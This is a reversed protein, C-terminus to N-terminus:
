HRAKPLGKEPSKKRAPASPRRKQPALGYFGDAVLLHLYAFAQQQEDAPIVAARCKEAGVCYEYRFPYLRWPGPADDLIQYNFTGSDVGAPITNTGVPDLGPCVIRVPGDFGDLRQVRFSASCARAKANVDVSSLAGFVVARPAPRRIQLVYVFDGGAAGTRERVVAAYTGKEPATFAICSDTDQRCKDLNLSVSMDDNSAVVRGGPGRVELVTDAPSDFRRSFTEVVLSEGKEARFVVQRRAGPEKFVGSVEFPIRDGGPARFFTRFGSPPPPAPTYAPVPLSRRVYPLSGTVCSIRYVFDARGRYLSDFIELEYVGDSPARCRLVPDPRHYEDDAFAVERGVSDLLRLVPQFHGPVADGIFPTLDSALVSFSYDQGGKLCVKFRDTEGPMVTGNLVAPFDAVVEAVQATAALFQPAYLPEAYEPVTGIVFSKPNSIGSGNFLRFSIEGVPADPPVELDLIVRQSLSPAAQLPNKPLYLFDEIISLELPDRLDLSELWAIQKWEKNTTAAEPLPPMEPKGAHLGRLWTDVWKRQDGILNQINPVPTVQTLRVANTPATLRLNGYLRQGGVVVRLHSGQQAGSPYLYGIYPANAALVSLPLLVFLARCFSAHRIM